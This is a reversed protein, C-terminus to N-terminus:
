RRPLLAFMVVPGSLVLATLGTMFTLTGLRIWPNRIPDRGMFLASILLGWFMALASLVTAALAVLFVAGVVTGPM